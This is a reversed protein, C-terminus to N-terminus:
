AVLNYNTDTLYDYLDNEQFLLVGKHLLCIQQSKQVIQPNGVGPIALAAFSPILVGHELMYLGRNYDELSFGEEQVRFFILRHRYLLAQIAMELGRSEPPPQGFLDLLQPLSECFYPYQYGGREAAGFLVVTHTKHDTGM